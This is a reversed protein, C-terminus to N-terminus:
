GWACAQPFLRAYSGVGRASGQFPRLRGGSSWFIVGGFIEGCWAFDTFKIKEAPRCTTTKNKREVQLHLKKFRRRHTFNQVAGAGPIGGGAPRRFRGLCRVQAM